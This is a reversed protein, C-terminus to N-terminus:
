RLRPAPPPDQDRDRFKSYRPQGVVPLSRGFRSSGRLIAGDLDLAGERESGEALQFFMRGGIDVSNMSIDGKIRANGVLFKGLVVAREFSVRGAIIAGRMSFDHHVHLRAADLSGSVHVGSLTLGATSTADALGLDADFTAGSFYTLGGISSKGLDASGYFSAGELRITSAFVARSFSASQKFVCGDLWATGSFSVGDFWARGKFVAGSLVTGRGLLAGNLTVNEHFTAYRAILIVRKHSFDLTGLAAGGLDITYTRGDARTSEALLTPILSEAVKRVTRERERAQGIPNIRNEVETLYDYPLRLYACVVDLVTQTRSPDIAALDRLTHLAGIRAAESESALLSVAGSFREEDSRRRNLKLEAEDHARRANSLWLTVAAGLLGAVLAASQIAQASPSPARASHPTTMYVLVGFGTAVLMILGIAAAFFANQSPRVERVKVEAVVFAVLALVLLCVISVEWPHRLM